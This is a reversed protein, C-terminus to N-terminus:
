SPKKFLFFRLGEPNGVPVRHRKSFEQAARYVENGGDDVWYDHGLVMGGAKIKPYWAELDNLCAEYTHDGDIFAIDISDDKFLKAGETSPTRISEILLDAYTDRINTLFMEYMEDNEIFDFDQHESSGTWTDICYIKAGLNRSAFLGSAISISSGGMWSGVELVAANNPLQSAMSFLFQIDQPALYCPVGNCENMISNPDLSAKKINLQKNIWLTKADLSMNKCFDKVYGMRSGEGTEKPISIYIQPKSNNAKEKHCLLHKLMIEDSKSSDFYDEWVKRAKRCINELQESSKGRIWKEIITGILDIASEPINICFESYDIEDAFPLIYEDSIHIPIRGMCLTEYFRVSSSGMGRPCLVTWSKKMSGIYVTELKQKKKEDDMHLYSTEKDSWNLTNPHKIFYKLNKSNQISQIGRLRLPDSLTGCFCIDNRIKDFNFNPAEKLVHKMPTHPATFIHPDDLNSERPDATFILADTCFPQGLDHSIHFVHKDEYDYFYPLTRLYYHVFLTRHKFVVPGLKFPFIIYDAEEPSNTTHYLGTSSEFDNNSKSILPIKPLESFDRPLTFHEHEKYFFLKLKNSM